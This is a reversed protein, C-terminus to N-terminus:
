EVLAALQDLAAGWGEHFGMARHKENDEANRHLVTAGYRTGEDVETLNIRATFALDTEIPAFGESMLSTFVILSQPEIQLFCGRVPMEDGEPGHMVSDFAGGHDFGFDKIEIRWPRPCWWRQLQHPDSWAEWIRHRPAAIHRALQLTTAPDFM